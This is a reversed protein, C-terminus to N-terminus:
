CWDHTLLHEYHAYCREQSEDDKKLGNYVAYFTRKFIIDDLARGRAGMKKLIYVTLFRSDKHKNFVRDPYATTLEDVIVEYFNKARIKKVRPQLNEDVKAEQTLNIKVRDHHNWYQRHFEKIEEESFTTSLVEPKGTEWDSSEGKCVYNYGTRNAVKISYAGNGTLSYFWGAKKKTGKFEARYAQENKHLSKCMLHIHPQKCDVDANERVLIHEVTRETAFQGYRPNLIDVTVRTHYYNDNENNSTM